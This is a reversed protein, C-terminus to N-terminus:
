RVHTRSEAHKTYLSRDRRSSPAISAADVPEGSWVGSSSPEVISSGDDSNYIGPDILLMVRYSNPDAPTAEM